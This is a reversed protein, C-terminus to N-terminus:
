RCVIKSTLPSGRPLFLTLGTFKMTSYKFTSHMPITRSASSPAVSILSNSCGSCRRCLSRWLNAYKVIFFLLKARKACAIKKETCKAPTITREVFHFSRNQLQPSSTLMEIVFTLKTKKDRFPKLQQFKTGPYNSCLKLRLLIIMSVRLWMKLQREWQRQTTNSLSGITRYLLSTKVLQFLWHTPRKWNASSTKRQM